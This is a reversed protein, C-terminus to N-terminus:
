FCYLSFLSFIRRLPQVVSVKPYVNGILIVIRFQTFVLLQHTRAGLLVVVRVLSLPRVHQLHTSTLIGSQHCHGSDYFGKYEFVQTVLRPSSSPAVVASSFCLNGELTLQWIRTVNLKFISCHLLM